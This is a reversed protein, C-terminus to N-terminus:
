KKGFTNEGKIEVYLFGDKDVYKAYIDSINSNTPPLIKNIFIFIAKSSELKIRHRLVYIFQGVTLDRPVLYKQKDLYFEKPNNSVIIPLRDSYKQLIKQSESKRAEFSYKKQFEMM